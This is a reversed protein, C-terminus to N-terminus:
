KKSLIQLLHCVFNCKSLMKLVPVLLMSSLLQSLQTFISFVYQICISIYMHVISILQMYTYVITELREFDLKAGRLLNELYLGAYVLIRICFIYQYIICTDVHYTCLLTSVNLHSGSIKVVTTRSGMYKTCTCTYLKTLTRCSQSNRCWQMYLICSKHLPEASHTCENFINKIVRTKMKKRHPQNINTFIKKNCSVNWDQCSYMIGLIYLFCM